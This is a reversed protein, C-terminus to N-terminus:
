AAIGAMREVTARPVGLSVGWLIGLLMRLEARQRLSFLIVPALSL